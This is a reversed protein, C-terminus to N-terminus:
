KDLKQLVVHDIYVKGKGFLMFGMGIKGDPGAKRSLACDGPIIAHRWKADRQKAVPIKANLAKGLFRALEEAALKAPLGSDEPVVIGFYVKGNEAFVQKINQDITCKRPPPDFHLEPQKLALLKHACSQM